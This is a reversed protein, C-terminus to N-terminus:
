THKRTRSRLSTIKAVLVFDMFTKIRRKEHIIEFDRRKATTVIAMRVHESLQALADVVGEIEIAETQLYEQYYNDRAERQRAITQEEFGAARALAWTGLGQDM